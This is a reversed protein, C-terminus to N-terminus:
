VDDNIADKLRVQFLTLDDIISDIKVSCEKLEIKELKERIKYLDEIIESSEIILRKEEYM